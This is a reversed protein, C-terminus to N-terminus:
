RRPGFSTILHILGLLRVDIRIRVVAVHIDNLRIGTLVFV